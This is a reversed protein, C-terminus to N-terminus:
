RAGALCDDWRALIAELGFRELVAPARAALRERAAADRMLRELEAALRATDAPPVLIGDVGHTVIERPGSECDFSISPLGCALAECLANPFGEFRSPLVFLDGTRLAGHPDRTAGPLAVRDELALRSRQAELRTREPGEGWITLTWGPHVQAVRAFADLLLDFGKEPSLRGLAVVRPTDVAPRPPAPPPALVPNPIVCARAQARRPLGRRATESLVVVAAARPYVRARLLKRWRGVDHVAPDSRESVVVPIGLPRAALLSLVNSTVMFSVIVDPTTQRFAQRLAVVRRRNNLAAHFVTASSGALGLPRHEVAPHLAHFPPLSGDDFTLLTVALDRRAWEGALISLVREAGGAALSHIVLTLREPRAM